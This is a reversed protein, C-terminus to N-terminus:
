GEALVVLGRQILELLAQEIEDRMQDDDHGVLLRTETIVDSLTRRGTCLVAGVYSPWAVRVSVSGDLSVVRSPGVAETRAAVGQLVPILDGCVALLGKRPDLYRVLKVRSLADLQTPLVASGGPWVEAFAGALEAEEPASRVHAWLAYLPLSLGVWRTGSYVLASAAEPIGEAFREVTAAPPPGVPWGLGILRVKLGGGGGVEEDGEM